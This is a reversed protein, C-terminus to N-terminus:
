LEIFRIDSDDVDKYKEQMKIRKKELEEKKKKEEFLVRQREREEEYKLKAREEAITKLYEERNIGRFQIQEQYLEEIVQNSINYSSREPLDGEKYSFKVETNFLNEQKLFAVIVALVYYKALYLRQFTKTEINFAAPFSTIYEKGQREIYFHYGACFIRIKYEKRLYSIKVFNDKINYFTEIIQSLQKKFVNELSGKSYSTPCAYTTVLSNWSVQNLIYYKEDNTGTTILINNDRARCHTKLNYLKYHISYGLYRNGRVDSWTTKKDEEKYYVNIKPM